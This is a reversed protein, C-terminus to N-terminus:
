EKEKGDREGRDMEGSAITKAGDMSEIAIAIRKLEREIDRNWATNAFDMHEGRMGVAHHVDDSSAVNTGVGIFLHILNSISRYYKSLRRHM